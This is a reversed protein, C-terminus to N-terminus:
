LRDTPMQLIYHAFRRIARGRHSIRHKEAPEMEAFTELAGEPLFVPDYGFGQTGRMEETITGKITGEFFHLSQGEFFAVVTRFQARRDSQGDLAELLKDINDQPNAAPGAYRASYVGPAGGLALVELGTDEAFCPVNSVEYYGMVKLEANGELTDATEPVDLEIGLDALSLIEHDHGILARVELLKNPNNTGFLLRAKQSM